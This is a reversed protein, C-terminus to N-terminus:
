STETSPAASNANREFAHIAPEFGRRARQPRARKIPERGDRQWQHQRPNERSRDRGERRPQASNPATMVKTEFIGPSVRVRGKASYM